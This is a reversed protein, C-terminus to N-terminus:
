IPIGSNGAKKLLEHIPMYRDLADLAARDVGTQGGSVIRITHKNSAEM